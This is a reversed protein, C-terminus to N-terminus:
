EMMKVCLMQTFTHYIHMIKYTIILVNVYQIFYICFIRNQANNGSTINYNNKIIDNMNTVSTDENPIEANETLKFLDTVVNNQISNNLLLITANCISQLEYPEIQEIDILTELKTKIDSLIKINTPVDCNYNWFTGVPDTLLNNKSQRILQKYGDSDYDADEYLSTQPYQLQPGGPTSNIYRSSAGYIHQNFCGINISTSLNIM